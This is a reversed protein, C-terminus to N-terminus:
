ETFERIESTIALQGDTPTAQQFTLLRTVDGDVRIQGTMFAEIGAQSDGRVLVAKAVEYGLTVTLDPSDLHGLDVKALGNSTDLHAAFHEDSFPVGEVVLNMRLPFVAPGGEAAHRAYVARAAEVWEPSLFAYKGAM